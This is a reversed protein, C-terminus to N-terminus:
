ELPKDNKIMDFIDNYYDNWHTNHYDCYDKLAGASLTIEGKELLKAYCRGIGPFWYKTITNNAKLTNYHTIKEQTNWHEYIDMIFLDFTEGTMTLVDSTHFTIKSFWSQTSFQTTFYDIFRQVTEWVDVSTVKPKQAIQQVLYGIALGGVGVAGTALSIPLSYTALIKPTLGAYVGGDKKIVWYNGSGKFTNFTMEEITIGDQDYAKPDYDTKKNNYYEDSFPDSM